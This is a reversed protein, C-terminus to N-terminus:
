GGIIMECRSYLVSLTDRTSEVMFVMGLQRLMDRIREDQIRRLGVRVLYVGAKALSFRM